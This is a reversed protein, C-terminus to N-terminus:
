REYNDREDLYDEWAQRELDSALLPMSSPNIDIEVSEKSYRLIAKLSQIEPGGSPPDIMDGPFYREILVEALYTVYDLELETTVITM